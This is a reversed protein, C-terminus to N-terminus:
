MFSAPSRTPNRRFKLTGTRFSPMLRRISHFAILAQTKAPLKSGVAARVDIEITRDVM